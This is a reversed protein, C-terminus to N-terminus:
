EKIDTSVLSAELCFSRGKETINGREEDIGQSGARQEGCCFSMSKNEQQSYSSPNVEKRHM